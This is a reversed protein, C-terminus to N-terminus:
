QASSGLANLVEDACRLDIAPNSARIKEIANRIELKSESDLANISEKNPYRLAICLKAATKVKTLVNKYAYKDITGILYYCLATQQENNSSDLTEFLEPLAAEGRATIRSQAKRITQFDASGLAAIDHKIESGVASKHCGTTLVIFLTALALCTLMVVQTTNM